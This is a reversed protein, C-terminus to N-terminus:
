VFLLLIKIATPAGLEHCSLLLTFIVVIFTQLGCCEWERINQRAWLSVNSRWILIPHGTNDQQPFQATVEGRRGGVM